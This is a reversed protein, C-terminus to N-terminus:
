NEVAFWRNCGSVGGSPLRATERVARLYTNAGSVARVDTRRQPFRHSVARFDNMENLSTLQAFQNSWTTLQKFDEPM